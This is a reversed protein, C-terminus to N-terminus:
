NSHTECYKGSYGDACWCSSIGDIVRVRHISSARTNSCICLDPGALLLDASESVRPYLCCDSLPHEILATKCDVPACGHSYRVPIYGKKCCCGTTGAPTDGPYTCKKTNFVDNDCQNLVRKVPAPEWAMAIGICIAVVAMNIVEGMRVPEFRYTSGAVTTCLLYVIPVMVVITSVGRPIVNDMSYLVFAAVVAIVIVLPKVAITRPRLREVIHAMLALLLYLQSAYWARRPTNGESLTIITARLALWIIVYVKNQVAIPNSVAWRRDQVQIDIDEWTLQIGVVITIAVQVVPGAWTDLLLELAIAAPILTGHIEPMNESKMWTYVWLVVGVVTLIAITANGSGKVAITVAAAIVLPLTVAKNWKTEEDSM